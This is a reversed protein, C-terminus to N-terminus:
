RPTGVYFRHYPNHPNRFEEDIQMGSQELARRVKKAPTGSRGIEWHHEPPLRGRGLLRPLDVRLKRERRRVGDLVAIGAYYQVDPVSIVLAASSVRVLESMARCSREWPLHELVQCCLVVAFSGTDFPVDDVSGIIDPGLEERVDLTTVTRGRAILERQVLGSGVGIVLIDGSVRLARDIQYWYSSWRQIDDYGSHQYDDRM